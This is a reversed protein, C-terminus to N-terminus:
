NIQNGNLENKVHNKGRWGDEYGESEDKTAHQNTGM